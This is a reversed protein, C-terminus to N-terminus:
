DINNNNYDNNNIYNNNNTITTTTTYFIFRVNIRPYLLRKTLKRKTKKYM